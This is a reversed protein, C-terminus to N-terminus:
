LNWSVRLASLMGVNGRASREPGVGCQVKIAGIPLWHLQPLLAWTTGSGIAHAYNVELGLTVHKTADVFISPNAIVEVVAAGTPGRGVHAGVMLFTAVSASFRHGQLYLATVDLSRTARTWQPTVLWGYVDRGRQKMALTGQVSGRVALLGDRDMPVELEAALGRGLTWEVEPATVWTYAGDIRRLQALTNVEAEGGRAGVSRVTDFYLPEPINVIAPDTGLLREDGDRIGDDDTDPRHPDSEDGSVKGDGDEDEVVDPVGDGDSDLEAAAVRAPVVTALLPFTALWLRDTTKM